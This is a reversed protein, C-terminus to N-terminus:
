SSVEILDPNFGEQLLRNIRENFQFVKGDKEVNWSLKRNMKIEQNPALSCNTLKEARRVRVLTSFSNLEDETKCTFVKEYLKAFNDCLSLHDFAKTIHFLANSNDTIFSWFQNGVMIDDQTLPKIRGGFESWWGDDDTEDSSNYPFVLRAHIDHASGQFKYYWFATWRLISENYTNGNGANVQVTKIDFIYTKTSKRLILDIGKGKTMKTFAFSQRTGLNSFSADLERRFSNLNSLNGDERQEKIRNILENLEPVHPKPQIKEKEDVVEFGNLVALKHALKEWLSTGLSTQLGAVASTIRREDPFLRDLLIHSTKKKSKSFYNYFAEETTEITLEEIKEASIM